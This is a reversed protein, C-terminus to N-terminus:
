GLFPILNAIFARNKSTILQHLILSWYRLITKMIPMKSAGEKRDYHLLLPVECARLSQSRLNLLIEVIANFGKERIFKEGHKAFADQLVAARYARYGCTYDKVNKTPFLIRMLISAGRSLAKRHVSLGFEKADEVFRSAIVLDYGQDIKAVMTAILDPPHTNDADMTIVVDGSDCLEAARKLGSKLAEGLGKNQVHDILQVPFSTSCNQAIELTRDSSGDNVVIIEYKLRTAQMAVSIGVILKELAAEENYAPLVIRLM